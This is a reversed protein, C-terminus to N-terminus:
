STACFCRQFLSRGTSLYYLLSNTLELDYNKPHVFAATPLYCLRYRVKIPIYSLYHYKPTIMTPLLYKDYPHFTSISHVLWRSGWGHRRSSYFVNTWRAESRLDSHFHRHFTPMTTRLSRFYLGRRRIDSYLLCPKGDDDHILYRWWISNMLHLLM